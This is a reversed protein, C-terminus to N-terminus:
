DYMKMMAFSVEIHAEGSTEKLLKKDDNVNLTEFVFDM